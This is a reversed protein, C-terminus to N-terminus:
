PQGLSGLILSHIFSHLLAAHFLPISLLYVTNHHLSDVYNYRIVIMVNLIELKHSTLVQLALRTNGSCDIRLMGLHDTPTVNKVTVCCLMMSDQVPAVECVNVKSKVLCFSRLCDVM